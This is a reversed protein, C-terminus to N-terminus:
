FREVTGWIQRAERWLNSLANLYFGTVVAAHNDRYFPCNGFFQFLAKDGGGYRRLTLLADLGGHLPMADLM